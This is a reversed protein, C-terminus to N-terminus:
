YIWSKLQYYETDSATAYKQKIRDGLPPPLTFIRYQKKANEGINLFYKKAVKKERISNSRWLVSIM